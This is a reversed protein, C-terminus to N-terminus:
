REAPRCHDLVTKIGGIRDAHLWRLNIRKFSRLYLFKKGLVRLHPKPKIFSKQHDDFLSQIVAGVLKALGDHVVRIHVIQKAGSM